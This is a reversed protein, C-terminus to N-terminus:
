RAPYSVVEVEAVVFHNRGLLVTVGPVLEDTAANRIDLDLKPERGKLQGALMIVPDRYPLPAKLVQDYQVDGYVFHYRHGVFPDQERDELTLLEIRGGKKTLIRVRTKPPLDLYKIADAM